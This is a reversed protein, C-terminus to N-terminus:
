RRGPKFDQVSSHSFGAIVRGPRDAQCIDVALGCRHNSCYFLSLTAHGTIWERIRADFRRRSMEGGKLRYGRLIGRIRLEVELVKSQLLKRGVLPARTGQGSIIKRPGPSLRGNLVHKRKPNYFM